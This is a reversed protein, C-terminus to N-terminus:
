FAANISRTRQQGDIILHTCLNGNLLPVGHERIEKPTWLIISGCPTDYYLSELFASVNDSGWVSGRQFHPVGWSDSTELIQGISITGDQRQPPLPSSSGRKVDEQDQPM